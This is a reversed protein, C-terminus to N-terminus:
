YHNKKEQSHTIDEVVIKQKLVSSKWFRLKKDQKDLSAAEIQPVRNTGAANYIYKRKDNQVNVIINTKLSWFQAFLSQFFACFYLWCYKVLGVDKGQIYDGTKISVNSNGSRNGFFRTINEQQKRLVLKDSQPNTLSSSKVKLKKVFSRTKLGFGLRPQRPLEEYSKDPLDRNDQLNQSDNPWGSRYEYEIPSRRIEELNESPYLVRAVNRNEDNVPKKREEMIYTTAGFLMLLCGMSILFLDVFSSNEIFKFIKLTTM